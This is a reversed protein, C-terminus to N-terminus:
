KYFFNKWRLFANMVREAQIAGAGTRRFVHAPCQAVLVKEIGDAVGGVGFVLFAQVPNAALKIGLLKIYVLDIVYQTAHFLSSSGGHRSVASCPQSPPRVRRSRHSALQLSFHASEPILEAGVRAELEEKAAHVKWRLGEANVQGKGCGLISAM